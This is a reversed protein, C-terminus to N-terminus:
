PKEVPSFDLIRVNSGYRRFNSFEIENLDTENRGKRLIVQAGVPLLYDHNNIVVYDYDVTVSVARIPYTKPVDDLVQAIRRVTRTASDIFVQGHYGVTIVDVPGARLNFTSNERAVRYDFVQVTSDGLQDTEKWQFDAKSAPKFLGSLTVGFEGVSIAGRINKTNDHSTAGNEELELMIRNEEHDFYTLLETFKDKHKWQKAGYLTYSRNTTQECMFNPLSERYAMAYKTADALISKLEDPAPRQIPTTPATIMLPGVPRAPASSATDAESANDGGQESGELNFSAGTEATKGGQSLIAKVEYLGDVPSNISFSTLYSSFEQGNAQRTTMPEGGLPKGDRFVQIKITAAEAVNPDSHAIFFVSVSKAGPALQGSLNSTVRINGHRLPETPDDEARFPETQRVLLMNSLSPIGSSNPIEFAVHQAGAKGSNRDLIAAELIYQGPPALFHREFTVARFDSKEADKQIKRRPIDASFREVIMGTTDKINAVISLSTSSIGTSSDERTELNSLPVEIALTSIEGEPTAGMHLIAARFAVDAPLQSKGLIKLLPLEFPQPGADGGTQPPLALYGSQARIKLGARLPKVAVPRFRGDYEKIPPIYSAVYYTTMDQIMRELSKQLRSQTIFSGGTGEALSKMEDNNIDSEVHSLYGNMGMANIKGQTSTMGDIGGSTPGGLAFGLVEASTQNMQSVKRDSSNLDVVYISEGAQNASGIISQIAERTRLDIKEEEFSTFFIVAKRQRIQQQSQALALLGALFPRLHQDQAIRGSKNLASLMALALTRDKAYIPKGSLDVGNTAESILQKEIQSVTSGSQTTVQQTATNVAQLLLKRDSTFESQLRLRGEVSLVSFSFGREPVIKLIKDAADRANKMVYPDAEQTKGVVPGPRDFVLTILRDSQQEGSVLRFSNLTVPSGNDTVAVEAQKLDLVPKNNKSHVVLDLSVEDAKVSLDTGQSSPQSPAQAFAWSISYTFALFGLSHMLLRSRVLMKMRTDRSIFM